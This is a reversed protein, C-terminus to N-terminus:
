SCASFFPPFYLLSCTFYLPSVILLPTSQFDVMILSVSPRFINILLCPHKCLTFICFVVINCNILQNFTLFLLFVVFYKDFSPELPEILM